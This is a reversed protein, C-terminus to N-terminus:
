PLKSCVCKIRYPLFYLSSKESQFNEEWSTIPKGKGTAFLEPADFLYNCFSSKGSGSKGMILINCKFNSAVLQEEM